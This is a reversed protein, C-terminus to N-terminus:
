GLAAARGELVDRVRRAKSAVLSDADSTATRVHDLAPMARLGIGALVNAVQLRTRPHEASVLAEGLWEVAGPEDLLALAEAAQTCVHVSPDEALVRALRARAPASRSGLVAAGLAAWTRVVEHPDDLAAVLAPLRAPDDQIALRAVDLVRPLPYDGSRSDDYGELALGEPIFGNDNVELLHDDLVSRLRELTERHTLDGVLNRVEEPDQRLDYLEEAPKREWFRRQVEPLGGALYRDRWDVYGAQRFQYAVHLGYIRHPHYNRVYRYREDRVTRQMDYTEDMRNRMSFAYRRRAPRDGLFRLGHSVPLPAAGALGLVTTPLDVGSVPRTVRAGRPYPSLRSVNRGFRVILPVRLGSDYCFRKSRPTVGGNDGYYFVITDDAVGADELEQLRRGINDDMLALNDYWRARDARAVESDPQYAPLRVEAPSTPGGPYAGFLQSEHTTNDNFVAFFPADTPRDRWHATISSEDWLVAPDVLANYDTKANNTCYYGRERMLEPLTAFGAPPEGEARHHEAPGASEPCLGTLLAFRSPACVPAMSFANEFRVGDTALRDLHPTRAVPDGYCGLAPVNDESVLWLVHPRSGDPRRARALQPLLATGLSAASTGILGRRTWRYRLPDTTTM